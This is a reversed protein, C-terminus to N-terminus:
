AIQKGCRECYVAYDKNNQGCYICFKETESGGDLSKQSAAEKPEETLLVTRNKPKRVSIVAMLISGAIAAIIIAFLVPNKNILDLSLPMVPQITPDGVNSSSSTTPLPTKSIAAGPTPTAKPIVVIPPVYQEREDIPYVYASLGSFEEPLMGIKFGSGTTECYYYTNNSDKPYTWSVGILGNGLIGVAYHNPPNIYVTGYGLILTLTAFLISTDECDGGEDVLTEIPFRPYEDYSTTVSDSTYTLSQVFALVFSVQDYTGYNMSTATENLKQALARLYYDNTTTLFGYGDPGNRTRSRISVEKYADYLAKPISLNWKWHNGNYDWAFSKDYYQDSTQAAVKTFSVTPVALILSLAVIIILKVLKPNIPSRMQEDEAIFLYVITPPM